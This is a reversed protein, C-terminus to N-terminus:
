AALAHSYWDFKLLQGVMCDWCHAFLQPRMVGLPQSQKPQQATGDPPCVMLTRRVGEHLAPENLSGFTQGRQVCCGEQRLGQSLHSTQMPFGAGSGLQLRGGGPVTMGGVVVGGPVPPM